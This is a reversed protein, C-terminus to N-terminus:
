RYKKPHTAKDGGWSGAKDQDWTVSAPHTTGEKIGLHDFHIKRYARARAAYDRSKSTHDVSDAAITSDQNQAHYTALMECFYAAALAQVAEEDYTEVTCASDTCTHLATYTVRFDESATPSNERFRLCKGAPKEYVMWEDDQLLDPTEDDDDVPYEVTKIVSFGEAWSAFGSLAYDFGGDGDFDEVVVQPKHRSHEKVAQNLALEKEPRGLPLDGGGVFGDMAILYDEKTSMTSAGSRVHSM